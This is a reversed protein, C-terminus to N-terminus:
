AFQSLFPTKRVQENTISDFAHEPGSFVFSETVLQEEKTKTVKRKVVYGDEDVEEFEEVETTVKPDGVTISSSIEIDSTDDAETRFTSPAPSDEDEAAHPVTHELVTGNGLTEETEVVRGPSSSVCGDDDSLAQHSNQLYDCLLILGRDVQAFM